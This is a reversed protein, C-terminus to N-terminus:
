ETPSVMASIETERTTSVDDRSNDFIVFLINYFLTSNLQTFQPFHRSIGSKEVSGETICVETFCQCEIAQIKRGFKRSCERKTRSIDAM